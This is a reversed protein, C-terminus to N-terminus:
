HPCYAWELGRDVIQSLTLGFTVMSANYKKGSLLLMVILWECGKCVKFISTSFQHRSRQHLTIDTADFFVCM